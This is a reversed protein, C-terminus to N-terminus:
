TLWSGWWCHLQDMSDHGSIFGSFKSTLHSSALSGDVRGLNSLDLTRRYGRLLLPLIWSLFSRGLFSSSEELSIASPKGSPQSPRWGYSDIALLLVQIAVAAFNTSALFGGGYLLWLTRACAARPLLTLSLYIGVLLSSRQSRTHELFILLILELAAVVDAAAAPISARTRRDRGLCLWVFVALQLACFVTAVGKSYWLNASFHLM